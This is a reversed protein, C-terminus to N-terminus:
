VRASISHGLKLTINARSLSNAFTVEQILHLPMLARRLKYSAKRRELDEKSHSYIQEMYRGGARLVHTTVWMGKEFGLFKLCYCHVCFLLTPKMLIVCTLALVHSEGTAVAKVGDPLSAARFDLPALILYMIVCLSAVLNGACVVWTARRYSVRFIRGHCLNKVIAM